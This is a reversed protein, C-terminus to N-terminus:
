SQDTGVSHKTAKGIHMKRMQSALRLTTATEQMDKEDCSVCAVAVVKTDSELSDQLLHTLTSNRYPVSRMFQTRCHVVDCLTGIAKNKFRWERSNGFPALFGHSSPSLLPKPRPAPSMSSTSLSKSALDMSALEAFRIKGVTGLGTSLNTSQVKLSCISHANSSYEEFSIGQEEIRVRRQGIAQKWVDLVDDFSDVSVSVIGQVITEGDGDVRIELKNKSTRSSTSAGQQSQIEDESATRKRNRNYKRSSMNMADGTVQGRSGGIPTGAILDCLREEYVEVITMTVVDKYRDKRQSAVSFLQRLGELEIGFDEVTVKTADECQVRGLMTESKGANTQGFALVCVNFGDLVSLIVDELEAFVETRDATPEFVRDFEFSLSSGAANTRDKNDARVSIIQPSPMSVFPQVLGAAKRDGPSGGTGATTTITTTTMTSATTRCYVRAVGRLDQVVHLLKM